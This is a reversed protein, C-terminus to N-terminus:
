WSSALLVIYDAYALLNIYTGGITCFTESSTVKDILERICLISSHLTM